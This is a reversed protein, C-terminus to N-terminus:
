HEVREIAVKRSVPKNIEYIRDVVADMQDLYSQRIEPFRMAEYTEMKSRVFINEMAAERAAQVAEEDDQFLMGKDKFFVFQLWYYERVKNEINRRTIALNKVTWAQKYQPTNRLAALNIGRAFEEGSWVGIEEGDITLKYRAGAPLYDIQIMERNMDEMFPVAELALSEKQDNGWMRSVTDVPFPLSKALYDFSISNKGTELGSVSANESKVIKGKKADIRVDAVPGTLGQEKLFLYAMVLHGGNGPHIRDPGTITFEPNSKQGELNIKKMPYYFDVFPWNHKAAEEKQFAVIREMTRSKGPFYNNENKMTEDYPSSSIIIKEIEPRAKLKEIIEKFYRYSEEVRGDAFQEPNDGHYEFYGSDNMGFSITAVTPKKAFVDTELRDNIQRAVDGGIGANFVEVRRDPFRTMYYLWIYIEYFGAETISNGVFAVRDGDQFPRPRQAISVNVILATLLLTILIKRM